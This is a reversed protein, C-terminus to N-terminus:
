LVALNLFLCCLLLVRFYICVFLIDRVFISLTEAYVEIFVRFYLASLYLHESNIMCIFFSCLVFNLKNQLVSLILLCGTYTFLVFHM